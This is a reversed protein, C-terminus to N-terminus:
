ILGPPKRDYIRDLWFVIAECLSLRFEPNDFLIGSKLSIGPCGHANHELELVMNDKCARMGSDKASGSTSYKANRYQKVALETIDFFTLTWCQVSYLTCHAM